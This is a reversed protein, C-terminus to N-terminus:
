CRVACCLEQTPTTANPITDATTCFAGDGCMRSVEECSDDAAVATSPLCVGAVVNIDQTPLIPACGFGEGCDDSDDMKTIKLM